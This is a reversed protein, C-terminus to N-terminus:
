RRNALRQTANMKAVLAGQYAIYQDIFVSILEKPLEGVKRELLELPGTHIKAMKIVLTKAIGITKAEKEDIVVDYKEQESSISITCYHISTVNVDSGIVLILEPKTDSDNSPDTRYYWVEFIM